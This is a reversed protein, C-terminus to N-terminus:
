VLRTMASARTGSLSILLVPIVNHFDRALVPFVRRKEVSDFLGASLGTEIAHTRVLEIRDGVVILGLIDSFDERQLAEIIRPKQFLSRFRSGTVVELIVSERFRNQFIADAGTETGAHYELVDYGLARAWRVAEEIM